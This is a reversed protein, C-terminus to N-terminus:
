ACLAMDMDVSGNNTNYPVNKQSSYDSRNAWLKEFYQPAPEIGEFPVGSKEVSEQLNAILAMQFKATVDEISDGQAGIDYELCQAVWNDGDKCTIVRIKFADKM